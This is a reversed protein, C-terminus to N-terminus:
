PTVSRWLLTSDMMKQLVLPLTGEGRLGMSTVLSGVTGPPVSLRIYDGRCNDLTTTSLSFTDSPVMQLGTIVTESHPKLSVCYTASIIIGVQELSLSLRWQSICALLWHSNFIYRFCCVFSPSAKM